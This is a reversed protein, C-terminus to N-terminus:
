VESKSEPTPAAPSEVQMPAFSPSNQVLQRLLEAEHEAKALQDHLDLLIAVESKLEGFVKQFILLFILCCVWKIIFSLVFLM